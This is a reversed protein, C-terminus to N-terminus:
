ISFGPSDETPWWNGAGLCSPFVCVLHSLCYVFSGCVVRPWILMAGQASLGGGPSFLSVSYYAILVIFLTPRVSCWLPPLLIRGPVTFLCAPGPQLPEPPRAGLLWSRSLKHSHHLFSFEVPSPPLGVEWTLQLCVHWSAPAAAGGLFWSCSLKYFCNHSYFEVPSPPLGVEWTFQLYVHLGSFAPATDGGGTHKSLPFSQPECVPSQTFFAQLALLTNLESRLDAYIIGGAIAPQCCHVPFCCGCITMWLGM